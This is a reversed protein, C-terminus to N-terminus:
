VGGGLPEAYAAVFGEGGDSLQVFDLHARPYAHRIGAAIAEGAQESTM